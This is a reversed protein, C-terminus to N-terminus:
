TTHAYEANPVRHNLVLPCVLALGVCGISHLKGPGQVLLNEEHGPIAALRNADWSSPNM